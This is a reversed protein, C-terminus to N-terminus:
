LALERSYSVGEYLLCIEIKMYFLSYFLLTNNSFLLNNGFFHNRLRPFKSYNNSAEKLAFKVKIEVDM